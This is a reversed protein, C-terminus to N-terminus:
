NWEVSYFDSYVLDDEEVNLWLFQITMFLYFLFFIM